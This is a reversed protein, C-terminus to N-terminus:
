DRSADERLAALDARARALAERRSEDDTAEAVQDLSADLRVFDEEIAHAVNAEHRFLADDYDVRARELADREHAFTTVLRRTSAVLMVLVFFLVIDLALDLSDPDEGIPPILRAVARIAFVVGLVVLPLPPRIGLRRVHIALVVAVALNLLGIAITLVDHASM